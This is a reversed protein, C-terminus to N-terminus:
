FAYFHGGLVLGPKHLGRFFIWLNENLNENGWFYENKEWGIIPWGAYMYIHYYLLIVEGVGPGLGLRRQHKLPKGMDLYNGSVLPM